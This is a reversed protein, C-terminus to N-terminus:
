DANLNEIYVANTREIAL